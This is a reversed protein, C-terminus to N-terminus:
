VHVIYLKNNVYKDGQKWKGVAIDHYTDSGLILHLHAQPFRSKIFNLTDITGHKPVMAEVEQEVKLVRVRCSKSSYSEFALQCMDVRTQFSSLSQKSSFQHKFVPLVWVEQFLNSKALYKVIGTHGRDGTPPNGSLGFIAIDRQGVALPLSSM